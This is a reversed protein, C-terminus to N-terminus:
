KDLGLSPIPKKQTQNLRPFKFHSLRYKMQFYNHLFLCLLLLFLYILLFVVVVVVFVTVNYLNLSLIPTCNIENGKMEGTRQLLTQCAKWPKNMRKCYTSVTRYISCHLGSNLSSRLRTRSVAFVRVRIRTNKCEDLHARKQWQRNNNMTTLERQTTNGFLVFYDM